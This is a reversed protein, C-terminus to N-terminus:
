VVPLRDKSLALPIAYSERRGSPACVTLTATFHRSLEQFCKAHERELGCFANTRDLSTQPPSTGYFFNECTEAM